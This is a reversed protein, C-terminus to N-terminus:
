LIIIHFYINKETKIENWLNLSCSVLKLWVTWVRLDNFVFKKKKKKKIYGVISKTIMEVLM